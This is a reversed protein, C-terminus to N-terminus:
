YYFFSGEEHSFNKEAMQMLENAKQILSNDDAVSGLQLLAQILYSYDDLNAAIKAVGKKWTHMLAGEKEFQQLMWQMHMTAIELYKKHQLAIASKSLAINMLANWSLLSKDDTLPRIRKQRKAFLKQKANEIQQKIEEISINEEDAIQEINKAVHLINTGEWNGEKSVGFYTSVIEDKEGLTDIWEEWMWTYYKGEEGESDADIARYYGGTADKLEREVFDITEEI